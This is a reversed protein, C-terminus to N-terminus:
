WEEGDRGKERRRPALVEGDALLFLEWERPSLEIGDTMTHFAPLIARRDDFAFCPVEVRDAVTELRTTPHLHGALAFASHCESPKHVLEFPEFRAGPEVVEVPWSAPLAGVQREHNGRVVRLAAPLADLAEAVRDVVPGPLGKAAHVFDGLVVLDDAGRAVVLGALRELLEGLTDGPVPAGHARFTAVRGLHVDAVFLTSETPWWLARDPLVRLSEGSLEVEVGDDM